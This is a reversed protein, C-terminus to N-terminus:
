PKKSPPEITDTGGSGSKDYGSDIGAASGNKGASSDVMSNDQKRTSDPVHTSNNGKCAVFTTAISIALVVMHIKIKM